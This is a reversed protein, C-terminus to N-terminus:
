RARLYDRAAYIAAAHGSEMLTRGSRIDEVLQDLGVFALAIEDGSEDDADPSQRLTADVALFSSLRNTHTAANPLFTGIPMLRESAFGTEELLERAAAKELGVAGDKMEDQEVTGGPLGLVTRGIGHRYERTLIVRGDDRRLAVINIWDPYELM